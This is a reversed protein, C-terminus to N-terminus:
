TLPSAWYGVKQTMTWAPAQAVVPRLDVSHTLKKGIEICYKDHLFDFLGASQGAVHPPPRRQGRGEMETSSHLVTGFFFSKYQYQYLGAFQGHPYGLMFSGACLGRMSLKYSGHDASIHDYSLIHARNESGLAVTRDHADNSAKWDNSILGRGLAIMSQHGSGITPSAANHVAGEADSEGPGAERLRAEQHIVQSAQAEKLEGIGQHSRQDPM